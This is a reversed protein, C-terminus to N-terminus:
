TRAERLRTLAKRQTAAGWPPGTEEQPAAGRRRGSEEQPAVGRRRETGEQNEAEVWRGVKSNGRKSMM